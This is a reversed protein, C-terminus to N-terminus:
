DRLTELWNVTVTVTLSSDQVSESGDEEDPTELVNVLATEGDEFVDFLFNQGFGSARADSSREVFFPEYSVGRAGIWTGDTSYLTRGDDSWRPSGALGGYHPVSGGSAEIM